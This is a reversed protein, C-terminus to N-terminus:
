ARLGLCLVTLPQSEGLPSIKKNLYNVVGRSTLCVTWANTREDVSIDSKPMVPEEHKLAPKIASTPVYVREDRDLKDTNRWFHQHRTRRRKAGQGSYPELSRM